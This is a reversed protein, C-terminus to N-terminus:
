KWALSGATPGPQRVAAAPWCRPRSSRRWARVYECRPARPQFPPPTWAYPSVHGRRKPWWGAGRASRPAVKRAHVGRRRGCTVAPEAPEGGVRPAHEGVVQGDDRPTCEDPGCPRAGPAPTVPREAVALHDRAFRRDLCENFERVAQCRPQSGNRHKQQRPENEAGARPAIGRAAYRDGGCEQHDDFRQQACSQHQEAPDFVVRRPAPDRRKAQVQHVREHKQRGNREGRPAERAAGGVPPTRARAFGRENREGQSQHQGHADGARHRREAVRQEGGRREGLANPLVKDRRRMKQNPKAHNVRRQRQDGREHHQETGRRQRPPPWRAGGDAERPERPPAPGPGEKFLRRRARCREATRGLPIMFVRERMESATTAANM